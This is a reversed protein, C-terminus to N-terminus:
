VSGGSPKEPHREAMGIEAAMKRESSQNQERSVQLKAALAETTMNKKEALQMLATEQNIKAIQLDADVKVQTINLQAELKLMEPDPPPGQQAREQAELEIEQDTKVIEGTPLMHAQVLKRFTSPIKMLEGLVPDGSFTTLMTMLNQAQLERVLLVSSGRADGEFDGKIFEKPNFAMNWDYLRRLNKITMQDDYSKVVRRFVVNVSNMLISMGMGTNRAGAGQEGQAIMPMNSEDDAFRQAMEIINALEVQRSDIHFAEFAKVPFPLNKVQLWLKRPEMEWIGNAPEVIERNVIIQPGVSLGANDMSMRWAANMAAQSDRLLYPVGFGFVGGADDEFCFLSYISEGTELMAPGHKLIKGYAFWVVYDMDELPDVDDLDDLADQQALGDMKALAISRLEDPEIPGHYEWVTYKGDIGDQPGNTIDRLQSVHAPVIDHPESQLMERIVAKDFGAKRALKRLEKKTYRHREFDFEREEPTQAAMDPFYNFPDVREWGPRPNNSQVLRWLRRPRGEQDVVTTGDDNEAGVQEYKRLMRGEVIPGKMVGCGIKVADHIVRRCKMNYQSETLQDKIEAKMAASKAKALREIEQIRLADDTGPEILQTAGMLEPVTTASIDWNEDDTPFLMDSLRAEWAHTKSRTENIYLRSKKATNLAAEVDSDYRGHYARLDKIWRDEIQIKKSVQEEALRDLRTVLGSVEEEARRLSDTDGVRPDVESLSM